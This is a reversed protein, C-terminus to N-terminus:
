LRKKIEKWDPCFKDMLTKFNKSHNFEILHCLEHILVYKVCEKDKKALYLNLTIRGDRKCNGWNKMKRVSINKPHRGVLMCCENLIKPLYEKVEKRYIEVLLKERQSITTNKLLYIKKDIHNAKVKDGLIIEYEDGWLMHKEGNTYKPPTKINNEIIYHKKKLIWDKKSTIFNIIEADSIFFPASLFVKGKPPKVKLYINKIDKRQINVKIEGVIIEDM